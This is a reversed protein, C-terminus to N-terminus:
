ASAGELERMRELAMEQLEAISRREKELLLREPSLLLIADEELQVTGKVCDNFIQGTPVPLLAGETAKIVRNVEDVVVAFRQGSVNLIVLPTWLEITPATLGFLSRLCIVPVFDGRLNLFGLLFRPKGVPRILEAMATIQEIDGSAVAYQREALQFVVLTQKKNQRNM